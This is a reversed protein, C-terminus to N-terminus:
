AIDLSMRCEGFVPGSLPPFLDGAIGIDSIEFPKRAGHRVTLVHVEIKEEDIRFIVRYIGSRKGFLLQRIEFGLKQSEPALACRAPMEALTQIESKLQRYWRTAAEPAQGDIYAFAEAIDREAREQIIVKFAM